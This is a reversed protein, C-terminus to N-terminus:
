PRNCCVQLSAFTFITLGVNRHKTPVAAGEQVIYKHLQLGMAWAAVGLTYGTCQCAVHIYFWAPNAGSLPRLYRAAMVGLPLLIGWAVGSIVGHRQLCAVGLFGM